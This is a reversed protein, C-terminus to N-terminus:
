LLLINNDCRGSDFLFYYYYHYPLVVHVLFSSDDCLEKRETKGEPELSNIGVAINNSCDDLAFSERFLVCAIQMIGIVRPLESRVSSITSRNFRVLPRFCKRPSRRPHEIISLRTIVGYSSIVTLRRPCRTFSKPRLKLPKLSRHNSRETSRYPVSDLVFSLVCCM